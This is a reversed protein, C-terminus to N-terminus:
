FSTLPVSRRITKHRVRETNALRRIQPAAAQQLLRPLGLLRGVIRKARIDARPEPVGGDPPQQVERRIRWALPMRSRDLSNQNRQGEAM